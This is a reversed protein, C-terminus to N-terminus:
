ASATGYLGEGERTTLTAKAILYSALNKVAILGAFVAALGPVGYLPGVYFCLPFGLLLPVLLTMLERGAYGSMNLLVGSLGTAANFLHGAALILLFYQLEAFEEGFVSTLLPALLICVVVCPLYLAMSFLQTKRLLRALATRDDSAAIRAFAPGYLAALLLLLTTIVNVLKFALAFVGIDDTSAFLPLILFPFNFFVISLLSSAWFYAQEHRREKARADQYEPNNAQQNEQKLRGKLLSAMLLAMVALSTGYCAILTIAELSLDLLWFTGCLILLSLPPTLNELSISTLASGCAKMSESYLRICAFLPASVVVAVLLKAFEEGRWQAPFSLPLVSIIILLLAFAAWALLIRQAAGRLWVKIRDYNRRSYDLSVKKMSQTPLGLAIAEGAICTWAIYLQLLGLGAAGTMSTVVLQVSFQAVIAGGRSSAMKLLALNDRNVLTMTPGDRM